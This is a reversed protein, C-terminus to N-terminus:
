ASWGGMACKQEANRRAQQPPSNFTERKGPGVDDSHNQPTHLRIAMVGVTYYHRLQYRHKSEDYYSHKSEDYYAADQFPYM